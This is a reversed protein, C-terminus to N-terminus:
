LAFLERLRASHSRSVSVEEGDTLFLIYGGSIGEEVTSVFKLNVIQQRNVRFFMQAPLRLEVRSLSKYVFPSDKGFFLRTYNGCSEFKRIEAIEVLYNQDKDRVFLRSNEDLVPEPPQDSLAKKQLKEIARALREPEIPKLLYDVTNFDFSRVAYESYATTFIVQPSVDLSSLMEFGNKGPMDIDLFIVDPKHQSILVEGEEADEAEGVLEINEHAALLAKLGERALRSDEVILAKM